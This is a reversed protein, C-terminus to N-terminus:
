IATGARRSTLPVALLARDEPAFRARTGAGFQRERVTIQHRLAIIEIDKDRDGRRLLRSAAFANTVALCALRLPM